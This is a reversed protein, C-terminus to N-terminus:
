KLLKELNMIINERNTDIKLYHQIEKNRSPNLEILDELNFNLEEGYDFLLASNKIDFFDDFDGIGRNLIFKKNKIVFDAIKIPSTIVTSKTPKVVSVCIDMKELEQDLLHYPVFNVTLNYKSNENFKKEILAKNDNKTLIYINIIDHNLIKVLHNFVRHIEDIDHWHNISGPYCLNIENSSNFDLIENSENLSSSNYCLLYKSETGPYLKIKLKKLKKSEVITFLSESILTRDIYRLLLRMKKIFPTKEELSYIVAGRPDYVFKVQKKLIKPLFFFIIGSIFGRLHITVENKRNKYLAKFM